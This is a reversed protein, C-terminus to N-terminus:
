FFFVFVIGSIIRTGRRHAFFCGLIILKGAHKPTMYELLWAKYCLIEGVVDFIVVVHFYFLVLTLLLAIGYIGTMRRRSPAVQKDIKAEDSTNPLKGTNDHLTEFPKSSVRPKEKLTSLALCFRRNLLPSHSIDYAFANQLGLARRLNLKPTLRMANAATTTSFVPALARRSM